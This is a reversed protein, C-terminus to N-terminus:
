EHNVEFIPMPRGARAQMGVRKIVGTAELERMDVSAIQLRGRKDRSYGREELFHAYDRIVFQRPAVQLFAEVRQAMGERVEHTREPKSFDRPPFDKHCRLVALQFFEPLQIGLEDLKAQLWDAQEPTLILNKRIWENAM